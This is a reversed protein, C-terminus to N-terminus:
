DISNIKSYFLEMYQIGYQHIGNYIYNHYFIGSYGDNYNRIIDKKYADIAKQRTDFLMPCSRDSCCKAPNYYSVVHIYDVDYWTEAEPFYKNLSSTEIKEIYFIDTKDRTSISLINNTVMIDIDGNKNEFGFSSLDHCDDNKNCNTKDCDDDYPGHITYTAIIKSFVDSEHVNVKSLDFYTDAEIDKDKKIIKSNELTEYGSLVFLKHDYEISIHQKIDSTYNIFTDLINFQEM